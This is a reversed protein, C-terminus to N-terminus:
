TQWAAAPRPVRAPRREPTRGAALALLAGVAPLVAVSAVAGEIGLPDVLGAVAASGIAGGLWFALTFLGSAASRVEAAVALPVRDVLAVQGGSFGVLVLGLALATWLAGGSGAGAVVLGAAALVAGGAALRFPDRRSILRGAARASVAGMLAAPWLVLGVQTLTWDHERLLLLPAAFLIALYSAFLTLAALAGLAFRPSRVVAAPVFSEPVRRVRRALGAAAAAAMIALAPAVWGALELSPAQLLLVLASALAAVLSAGLPDLRSDAASAAPALRVTAGVALLALAPLAIPVRWSAADALLGGILTGSGSIIGLCATLVALVKARDAGAYGAAIVAYAAVFLGGGGAGQLLRGALLLAFSGSLAALLSGAAVLTAGAGLVVRGGRIDGLRGFVGVFTAQAVLYGALVWAAQPRSLGLEGTVSPLAVAVTSIGLAGPVVLAGLLLGGATPSLAPEARGRHRTASAM